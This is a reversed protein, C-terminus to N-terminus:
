VDEMKLQLWGGLIIQRFYIFFKLLWSYTLCLNCYKCEASERCAIKTLKGFIYTSPVSRKSFITNLDRRIYLKLNFRDSLSSEDSFLMSRSVPLTYLPSLSVPKSLMDLASVGCLGIGHLKQMSPLVCCSTHGSVAEATSTATARWSSLRRWSTVLSLHSLSSRSRCFTTLRPENEWAPSPPTPPPPPPPPLGEVEVSRGEEVQINLVSVSLLASVRVGSISEKNGLQALTKSFVRYIM